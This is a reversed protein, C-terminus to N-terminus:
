PISTVPGTYDGSGDTVVIDTSIQDGNLTAAAIGELTAMTRYSNGHGTADLQFLTDSGSQLFRAHGQLSNWGASKVLASIDIVDSSGFDKITDGGESVALYVFRDAGAGGRVIDAGDGGWIYDAGAKGDITDDGKGGLLRNDNSTGIMSENLAFAGVKLTVGNQTLSPDDSSIIIKDSLIEFSSNSLKNDTPDNQNFFAYGSNEKLEVNSVDIRRGDGDGYEFFLIGKNNGAGSVDTFTNDAGRAGLVGFSDFVVSNSVENFRGESHWSFAFSTAENVVVNSVQMDYDAGYRAPNVQTQDFGVANDDVAHRVAEAYFGDVTTGISSASHVGYGYHGNPTDDTLNIAASQRVSGNVAGVFNIGMSNGDRVTVHDIQTGVTSRIDILNTAWGPHSQDGRVTGNQIVAESADFASARINTKYLGGYYLEGDLTLTNGNVAVVKMAQGLRTSAGQDNPLHDDSYVKVYDGVAVTYAGSYKVTTQGEADKGLKAPEGDSRGGQVTLVTTDGAQQLTSGNLDLTISRHNTSVKLGNKITIVQDAPLIVTYGDPAAAITKQIEAEDAGSNIYINKGM